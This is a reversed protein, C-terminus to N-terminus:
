SPVLLPVSQLVAQTDKPLCPGGWGPGPSLYCAGIRPDHGLVEAVERIDAGTRECLSAVENIYSLKVALFCNAAYKALEASATSTFVVPVPLKAYLRAIREGTGDIDCGVVIRDPRLSDAVATGERLFEPNSVVVVDPRGLLAAIRAATGPPVTSKIVVASRHPLEDAIEAAVTMVATVDSAGGPGAPTPLCLFVAEADTVADHTGVDFRLRGAALGETVLACLGPELIDIQGHRLRGILAADRDACRVRHGLSALCAATTLGVYGAGIVSIRCYLPTM